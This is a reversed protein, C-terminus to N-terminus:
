RCPSVSRNRFVRGSQPLLGDRAVTHEVYGMGLWGARNCLSVANCPAGVTSSVCRHKLTLNGRAFCAMSCFSSGSLIRDGGDRPTMRFFGRSLRVGYTLHHFVHWLFFSSITCFEIGDELPTMRFFGRSVPVGFVFVFIFIFIFMFLFSSSSYLFSSQSTPWMVGSIRPEM